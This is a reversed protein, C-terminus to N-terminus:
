GIVQIFMGMMDLLNEKDMQFDKILNDKIYIIIKYYLYEKVMFYDKHFNAKM